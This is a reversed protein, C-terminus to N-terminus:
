VDANRDEWYIIRECHPCLMLKDHRQLENYMQPPINMHCGYCVAKWVPVVARGNKRGKIMDFKKLLSTKTRSRVEDRRKLVKELESGISNLEEEMKRMENECTSRHGATESEKVNLREGAGDIQELIHIIEDEVASNKEHIADIEKLIAEYEKNTKVELLRGKAKKANEIGNKLATEKVKHDARLMEVRQEDEALEREISELKEGIRNIEQPLDVRGATLKDMEFTIKQLEILLFIQEKL